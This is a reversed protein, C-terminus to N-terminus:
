KSEKSNNKILHGLVGNIFGPSGDGGYEKALEIAEDIIVKPPTLKEFLLEYIALRLIATDIKAIKEVPFQPASQEILLDIKKSLSKITKVKENINKEKDHFSSAFLSQMIKIRNLHRPDDVKKM